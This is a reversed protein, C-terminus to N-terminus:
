QSTYVISFTNRDDTVSLLFQCINRSAEHILYVMDIKHSQTEIFEVIPDHQQTTLRKPAKRINRFTVILKTM